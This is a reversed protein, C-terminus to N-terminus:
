VYRNCIKIVLICMFFPGYIVDSCRAFAIKILVIEVAFARAFARRKVAEALGIKGM